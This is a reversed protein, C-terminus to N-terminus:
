VREDRARRDGDPIALPGHLNKLDIPPVRRLHAPPVSGPPEIGAIGQLTQPHPPWRAGWEFSLSCAGGWGGSAMTPPM